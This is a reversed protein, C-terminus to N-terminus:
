DELNMKRLLARYRPHGRLPAWGPAHKLICIVILDREEVSKELWELTHEVDGLGQYAVAIAYPPVYSTRRQTALDELRDRICM